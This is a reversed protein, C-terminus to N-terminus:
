LHGAAENLSYNNVIVLYGLASKSGIGKSFWYWMGNSIKLSDHTKTCYNDDNIKVLENPEYNKLYTLLDIGKVKKLDDKSYFM